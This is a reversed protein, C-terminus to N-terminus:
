AGGIFGACLCFLPAPSIKSEYVIKDPMELVKRDELATITVASDEDRGFQTDLLIRASLDSKGDGFYEATYGVKVAWSNERGADKVIALYQSIAFDGITWHSVVENNQNAGPELFVPTDQTAYAHGYRYDEGDIRFTTYSLLGESLPGEPDQSTPLVSFGGDQRNVYASIYDNWIREYKVGDVEITGSRVQTDGTLQTKKALGSFQPTEAHGARRVGAAPGQIPFMTVFLVLVLYLALIRRAKKRRKM